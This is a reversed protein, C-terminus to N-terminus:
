TYNANSRERLGKQYGASNLGFVLFALLNHDIRMNLLAPVAYVAIFVQVFLPSGRFFEVYVAIIGKSVKGGYLDGIALLHEWYYGLLLRRVSYDSSDGVIRSPDLDLEPPKNAM